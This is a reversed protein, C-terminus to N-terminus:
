LREREAQAAKEILRQYTAWHMRGPKEPLPRVLRTRIQQIRHSARQPRNMRQSMHELAHCRRCGFYLGDLYLIAVRRGCEAMPCVFWPRQRGYNCPTFTLGVREEIPEWRQGRPRDPRRIEYTLVLLDGRVEVDVTFDAAAENKSWGYSFRRNPELLGERQWRRVDIRLHSEVFGLDDSRSQRGSGLGGM